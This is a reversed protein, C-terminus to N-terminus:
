IFNNNLSTLLSNANISNILKKNIQFPSNIKRMDNLKKSGYAPNTNITNLYFYQNYSIDNEIMYPKMYEKHLQSFIRLRGGLFNENAM